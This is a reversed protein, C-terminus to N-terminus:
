PRSGPIWFCLFGSTRSEPGAAERRGPIVAPSNKLVRSPGEKIKLMIKDSFRKVSKPIM